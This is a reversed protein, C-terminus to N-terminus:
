RKYGRQAARLRSGTLTSLAGNRSCAADRLRVTEATFTAPNVSPNHIKIKIKFNKLTGCETIRIWFIHTCTEATEKPRSHTVGPCVEYLLTIYFFM